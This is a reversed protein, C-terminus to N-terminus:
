DALDNALLAGGLLMVGVSMSLLSVSVFGGVQVLNPNKPPAGPDTDNKSTAELLASAAATSAALAAGGGLLALGVRGGDRLTRASEPASEPASETPAADVPDAPDQARASAVPLALSAALVLPVFSRM